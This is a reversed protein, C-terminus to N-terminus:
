VQKQWDKINDNYPAYVKWTGRRAFWPFELEPEITHAFGLNNNANKDKTQSVMWKGNPCYRLWVDPHDFNQFLPRGNMLM